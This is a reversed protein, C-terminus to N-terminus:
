RPPKEIATKLVIVPKGLRAELEQSLTTWHSSGYVVLVRANHELQKLITSLLHGDRFRMNDASLKRLLTESGPDLRHPMQDDSVPDVGVIRRYDASFQAVNVLPTGTMQAVARAEREVVAAFAAADGTPMEGSSRAQAISRLRVAFLVDSRNHGGTVLGEIEEVVTPEGGIFPVGRALAQSAAFVAESMAFADADPEGRRRGAAVIPAFNAGLATPFGEVIVVSPTAEVFARRIADLTSNERTFVHDAGVFVLRKDGSSYTVIFPADTPGRERALAETFLPIAVALMTFLGTM